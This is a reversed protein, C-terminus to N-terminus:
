NISALILMTKKVENQYKTSDNHKYCILAHKMSKTKKLCDSLIRAGIDINVEVEYLDKGRVKDLHSSKNVQMLGYNGKNYSTKQFKSETKLVAILLHRPLKYKKNAKKVVKNLKHSNVCQETCLKSIYEELSRSKSHVSSSLSLLILFIIFRM